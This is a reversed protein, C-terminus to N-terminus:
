GTASQQLEKTARDVIWSMAEDTLGSTDVNVANIRLQDLWDNFFKDIIATRDDASLERNGKDVLKVVWAGGKTWFTTDQIPESWKGPETAPDFVYSDFATSIATKNSSAPNVFTGLEGHKEQSPSYQSFQDAIASLNDGSELRGRIDKAEDESSLYLGQVEATENESMSVVNILWYGLQKYSANDSLPPSIEGPEAGFAWDIPIQSGVQDKLVISPHWGFDGYPANKAYYNQGYQKALETFNDGNVLKDHIEQAVPDSEVLMAMMDVQNDTSPVQAGFYDDKLKTQLKERRMLDMYVRSVPAGVDELSKKIEEDSITMGYSVAAQKVLENEVIANQVTSIMGQMSQSPNGAGYIELLDAFYGASFKTGNVKIVTQHVPHYDGVYWGAVIIILIAAIIATGSIFIIRQRRQQRKFHSLQRKTYEKPKEVRKKKAV